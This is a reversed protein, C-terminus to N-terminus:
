NSYLKKYAADLAEVTAQCPGECDDSSYFKILESQVKKCAAPSKCNQLAMRAQNACNLDLALIREQGEKPLDPPLQNCPDVTPSSPFKQFRSKTRTYAEQIKIYTPKCYDEKCHDSHYKLSLTKFQKKCSDLDKCNNLLIEAQNDCKPDLALIRQHEEKIDDFNPPLVSCDLPLVTDFSPPPDILTQCAGRIKERAITCEEAKCRFQNKLTREAEELTKEPYSGLSMITEADGKMESYCQTAREKYFDAIRKTCDNLSENPFNAKCEIELRDRTYITYPSEKCMPQKGFRADLEPQALCQRVDGFQCIMRKKIGSTQLFQWTAFLANAGHILTNRLPRYTELGSNKWSIRFADFFKKGLTATHLGQYCSKHLRHDIFHANLSHGFLLSTGIRLVPHGFHPLHWVASLVPLASLFKGADPVDLYNCAASAAFLGFTFLASMDLKLPDRLAARYKSVTNLIAFPTTVLTTRVLPDGGRKILARATPLQEAALAFHLPTRGNRDPTNPNFKKTDLLLSIVAESGSIAALHLLNIGNSDTSELKAGKKSLLWQVAAVKGGMVAYSLTTMGNADATFLETQQSLRELGNVDGLFAAAHLPLLTAVPPYRFKRIDLGLEQIETQDARESLLASEPVSTGLAAGVVLAIMKPDKKLYAHDFATLGQHDKSLPDIGATQLLYNVIEVKGSRIAYHLPMEGNSLRLKAKPNMELIQAASKLDNEKVARLFDYPALKAYAAQVRQSIAQLAADLDTHAKRLQASKEILRHCAFAYPLFGVELRAGSEQAQLAACIKRTEDSITPFRKFIPDYRAAVVNM